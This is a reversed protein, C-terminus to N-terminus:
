KEIHFSLPISLKSDITKGNVSASHWAPMSEIVRIAEKDLEPSLSKVVKIRDIDGEKNIFFSILVTGEISDKLVSEPYKLEHEFYQYLESIGNVPKAEVYKYEVLEKSTETKNIEQKEPPNRPTTIPLKGVKKRATKKKKVPSVSESNELPKNIASKEIEKKKQSNDATITAIEEIIPKDNKTITESSSPMLFYMLSGVVVISLLGKIWRYQPKVSLAKTHNKMLLNFDKFAEVEKISISSKEPIINFKESM